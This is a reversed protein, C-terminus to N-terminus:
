TLSIDWWYGAQFAAESLSSNGNKVKRSDELDGISFSMSHAFASIV